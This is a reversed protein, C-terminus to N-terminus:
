SAVRDPTAVGFRCVGTLHLLDVSLLLVRLFFSFLHPCFIAELASQASFSIGCLSFIPGSMQLTYMQFDNGETTKVESTEGVDRLLEGHSLPVM